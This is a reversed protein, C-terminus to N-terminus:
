KHAMCGTSSEQLSGREGRNGGRAGPAGVVLDVDSYDANATAARIVDLIVRLLGIRADGRNTIDILRVEFASGRENLLQRTLLRLAVLVHPLEEGIFLNVSDRQRQRIVPMREGRHPGALGALVNVNFLGGAM